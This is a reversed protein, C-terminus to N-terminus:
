PRLSRAEVPSEEEGGLAERWQSRGCAGTRVGLRGLYTELTRKLERDLREIEIEEATKGTHLEHEESAPRRRGYLQQMRLEAKALMEKYRTDLRGLSQALESLAVFRSRLTWWEFLTLVTVGLMLLSAAAVGLATGRWWPLLRAAGKLASNESALGADRGALSVAEAKARDLERRSESAEATVGKLRAELAQREAEFPNPIKLAEGALLEDDERLHNARALDAAPIGFSEAVAGLSDGPRVTYPFYKRLKVPTGPASPSPVTGAPPRSRELADRRHAPGKTAGSGTAPIVIAPINARSREPRVTSEALAPISPVAAPRNLGGDQGAAVRAGLLTLVLVLVLRRLLGDAARMSMIFINGM